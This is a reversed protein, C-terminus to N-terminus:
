SPRIWRLSLSTSHLRFGLSLYLNAAPINAIQTGVACYMGGRDKLQRVAERSLAKALGKGSSEKAVAVLVITGFLIGAAQGLKVTVFGCPGGKGDVTVVFDAAQGRVSNRLWEAHIDDALQSPVYPDNHFRDFIFGRRALKALADTDAATALRVRPDAGSAALLSETPATFTLLGDVYQFGITELGQIEHFWRSSLRAFAYRIGAQRLHSSLTTGLEKAASLSATSFLRLTAADMKLMRTDWSSRSWVAMGNPVSVIEGSADELVRRLADRGSERLLIKDSIFGSLPSLETPDLWTLDECKIM